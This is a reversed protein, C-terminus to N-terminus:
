VPEQWHTPNFTKGEYSYKANPVYVGQVIVGRDDMMRVTQGQQPQEHKFDKWGVTIDPATFHVTTKKPDNM